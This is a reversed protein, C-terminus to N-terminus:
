SGDPEDVRVGSVTGDTVAVGGFRARCSLWDADCAWALRAWDDTRAAGAAGVM